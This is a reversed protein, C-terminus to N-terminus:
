HGFINATIRDTISRTRRSRATVDEKDHAKKKHHPHHHHHKKDTGHQKKKHNTRHKGTGRHKKGSAAHTAAASESGADAGGPHGGSAAAERSVKKKKVDGRRVPQQSPPKKEGGSRKLGHRDGHNKEKRGRAKKERNSHRVLVGGLKGHAGGSAVDHSADGRGMGSQALGTNKAGPPSLPAADSRPLANGPTCPGVAAAHPHNQKEEHVRPGEQIQERHSEVGRQQHRGPALSQQQAALHQQRSEQAGEAAGEAEHVRKRKGCKRLLDVGVDLLAFLVVTANSGVLLWTLVRNSYRRLPPPLSCALFASASSSPWTSVGVQGEQQRVAIYLPMCRCPAHCLPCARHQFCHLCIHRM